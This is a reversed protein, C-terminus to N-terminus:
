GDQEETYSQLSRELSHRISDKLSHPTLVKVHLAYQLAWLKMAEENVEVHVTVAEETIDSIRLNNGFWDIIDNILYRKAQFAVQRQASIAEDLVELTLFIENNQPRNEWM